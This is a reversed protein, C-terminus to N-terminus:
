GTFSIQLFTKGIYNRLILTPKNLSIAEEQVGGSDTAVGTAANMTFILDHHSMPETVWIGPMVGLKSEELIDTIVPNPHKPYIVFLNPDDALAQKVATFIQKLGGNFSERRHATLLIIKKGEQKAKAVRTALEISPKLTNDIVRYLADVVTNGTRFISSKPIGELLLQKHASATPAFHLSSVSTILRRNMEEPFPNHINKSRLGAEVHAVPIKLYFAALACAMASTTDGQVVVLSPQIEQFYLKAKKLITETLYFLDQNKKMVAFDIDPSLDYEALLEAHQGTCCLLTPIKGKKLAEYVPTMKIAEPRTGVVM